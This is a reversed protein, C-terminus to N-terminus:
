RGGSRAADAPIPRGAAAPGSAGGGVENAPHRPPEGRLVRVVDEVATQLLEDIAELSYHAAHPTLLVDDLALLPEGDAPPEEELVDLAAGGLKGAALAAVLAPQDVLGGRAVNILQAGPRMWALETAGILHHTEATLPAHISVFDSRRLLEELSVPEAGRAAIQEPALHPDFALVVPGLAGVKRAFAAGIRGFGVVGVVQERLRRVETGAALYHWSGARVSADLPLLRRSLALLLALAHDSVEDVTAAPVNTVQIGAASAADLDVMDLGVGLRGIVRCRDLKAIVRATVPASLVLLADAEAGAACLDAEDHCVRVRLEVGAEALTALQRKGLEVVDDTKVLVPATM